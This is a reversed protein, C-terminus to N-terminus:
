DDLLSKISVTNIKKMASSKDLYLYLAKTQTFFNSLFAESSGFTEYETEVLSCWSQIYEIAKYDSEDIVGDQRLQSKQYTLTKIKESIDREFVLYKSIFANKDQCISYSVELWEKWTKSQQKYREDILECEFVFPQIGIEFSSILESFIEQQYLTAKKNNAKCTAADVMWAVLVSAFGGCGLGAVLTFWPSATCIMLSTLSIALFLVLLCVYLIHNPKFSKMSEGKSLDIKKSDTSSYCMKNDLKKNKKNSVKLENRISVILRTANKNECNKLAIFENYTDDSANVAFLSDYKALVASKEENSADTLEKLFNEYVEIMKEKSKMFAQNKRESSKSVANVIIAGLGSIIAVVITPEVTSTYDGFVKVMSTFLSWGLMILAILFVLSLVFKLATIFADKLKM